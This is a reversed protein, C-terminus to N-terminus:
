LTRTMSDRFRGYEADEQDIRDWDSCTMRRRHSGVTQAYYAMNHLAMSPSPCALGMYLITNPELQLYYKYM